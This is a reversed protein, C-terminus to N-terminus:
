TRTELRSLTPPHTFRKRIEEGESALKHAEGDERSRDALAGPTM